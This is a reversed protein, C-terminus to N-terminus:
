VSTQDAVVFNLTAEDSCVFFTFMPEKHTHQPVVHNCKPGCEAEGPNCTFVLVKKVFFTRVVVGYGAEM